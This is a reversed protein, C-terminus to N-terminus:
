ILRRMQATEDPKLEGCSALSGLNNAKSASLGMKIENTRRGAGEEEGGGGGRVGM